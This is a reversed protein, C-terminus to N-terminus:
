PVKFMDNFDKGPYLNETQGAPKKRLVRQWAYDDVTKDTFLHNHGVVMAPTEGEEPKVVIRKQKYHLELTTTNMDPHFGSTRDQELEQWEIFMVTEPDFACNCTESTACLCKSLVDFSESNVHGRYSALLVEIDCLKKVPVNYWRVVIDATPVIITAYSEGDLQKNQLDDIAWQLHRNPLTYQEYGPNRQVSIATNDELEELHPVETDAVPGICQWPPSAYEIVVACMCGCNGSVLQGNEDGEPWAVPYYKEMQAANTPDTVCQILPHDQDRPDPYLVNFCAKEVPEQRFRMAVMKLQRSVPQTQASPDYPYEAPLVPTTYVTDKWYKGIMRLAFEEAFACPVLFRRSTALSKGDFSPLVGTEEVFVVFDTYDNCMNNQGM